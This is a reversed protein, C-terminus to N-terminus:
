RRLGLERDFSIAIQLKKAKFKSFDFNIIFIYL